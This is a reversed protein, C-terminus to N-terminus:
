NSTDIWLSFKELKTPASSSVHYPYNWREKEEETVFKRTSTEIIMDTSHTETHVYYNANEEINDLKIKDFNSILGNEEYSSLKNEAKNNWFIKEEDTVFRNNSDQNIKEPTLQPIDNIDLSDGSVVIGKENVTLKTYTGSNTTDKLNILGNEDKEICSNEDVFIDNTIKKFYIEDRDILLDKNSDSLL